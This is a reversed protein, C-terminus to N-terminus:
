AADRPGAAGAAPVPARPCGARRLGRGRSGVPRCRGRATAPSRAAAGSRSPKRLVSIPPTLPFRICSEPIVPGVALDPPECVSKLGNASAIGLTTWETGQKSQAGSPVCQTLTLCLGHCTGEGLSVRAGGFGEGM